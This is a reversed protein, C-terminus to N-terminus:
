KKTIVVDPVDVYQHTAASQNMAEMVANVKAGDIFDPHVPTDLAIANLFNYINHTFSHEYGLIHGPPWWANLYPHIPETVKITRFGQIHPPDERNFYQLENMREFEFRLSGKSGNIEFALANKWGAAFRTAEFTGLAGNKFRALSIIADDVTVTGMGEGSTASLGTSAAPIPREKIFTECLASVEAIDGVLWNALDIIHANLDGQSGSGAVSKDLRWVLPFNPDIIWDQLYTGRWHFIRGIRGEDILQKALAIAPCARYNFNVMHKVGADVAAQAMRTADALNMAMPKECLVHKGAKIAELAIGTHTDNSTCIDVIDIDPRLFAQHWDTEIEQWGYEIRANQVADPTRGVLLKMVPEAAPQMMRAVQRYANSHARGMFKYGIM